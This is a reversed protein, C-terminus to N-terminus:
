EGKIENLIINQVNNTIDDEPQLSSVQQWSYSNAWSKLLKRLKTQHRIFNEEKVENDRGCEYPTLDGQKRKLAEKPPVDFYFVLDSIPLQLFTEKIWKEDCGYLIESAAHKMWYGDLLYIHNKDQLNNKTLTISISWFLFLARSIGEMESICVRLDSLPTNIFRCEPFKESDLINWKDLIDVNYNNDRLWKQIKKIQTSKGSGDCGTFTILM